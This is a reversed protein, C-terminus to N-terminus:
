VAAALRTRNLRLLRGLSLTRHVPSPPALDLFEKRTSPPELARSYTSKIAYDFSALEASTDACAIVLGGIRAKVITM